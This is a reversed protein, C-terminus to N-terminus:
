SGSYRLTIVAKLSNSYETFDVSGGIKYIYENVNSLGLGHNKKDNKHTLYSIKEEITNSVSIQFYTKGASFEVCLYKKVNSKIRLLAEVANQLINGYIVVLATEDTEIVSPILGSVFVSTDDDLLSIYHNTVADIKDNGTNYTTQVLVSESQIDSVYAAVEATEGKKALDQVVLLHKKIDHRFKRTDEEKKLLNKYYSEQTRTFDSIQEIYLMQQKYVYRLFLAFLILAEACICTIIGSTILAPELYVTSKNDVLLLNIFVGVFMGLAMIFVFIRSRGLLKERLGSSRQKGTLRIKISRILLLILFETLIFCFHVLLTESIIINQILFIRYVFNVLLDIGATFGIVLIMHKIRNKFAGTSFLIMLPFSIVDSIYIIDSNSFAQGWPQAKSILFVVFTLGATICYIVPWKRIKNDSFVTYALQIFAINLLVSLIILLLNM